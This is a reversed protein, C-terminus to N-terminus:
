DKDESIDMPGLFYWVSLLAKFNKIAQPCKTKRQRLGPYHFYSESAIGIISLTPTLNLKLISM